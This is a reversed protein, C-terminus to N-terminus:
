GLVVKGVVPGTWRQQRDGRGDSRFRAPDPDPGLDHQQGEVVGDAQRLIGRDDVDQRVPPEVKSEPRTVARRLEGAEANRSRLPGGAHVLPKQDQPLREAPFGELVV